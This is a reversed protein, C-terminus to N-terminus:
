DLRALPAAAVAQRPWRPRVSQPDAGGRPLLGAHRPPMRRHRIRRRGADGGDSRPAAGTRDDPRPDAGARWLAAPEGADPLRVPHETTGHDNSRIQGWARSFLQAATM